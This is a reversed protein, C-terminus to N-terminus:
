LGLGTWSAYPYVQEVYVARPSQILKQATADVEHEHYVWLLDWGNKAIGTIDGITLGTVNKSRAFQFTISSTLSTTLSVSGRAGVLMLEGAARGRFTHNCVTGVLSEVLDEYAETFTTGDAKYTLTFSAQPIQIDVGEVTGDPKVNILQKHDPPDTGYSNVTALSQKINQSTLTVDFGYEISGAPAPDPFGILSPSTYPVEAEYIVGGGATIEKLKPERRLLSFGAPSVWTEPAYEYAPSKTPNGDDILLLLAENIDDVGRIQYTVRGEYASFDRTGNKEWVSQPM